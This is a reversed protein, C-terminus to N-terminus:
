ADHGGRGGGSGRKRQRAEAKTPAGAVHRAERKWTLVAERTAVWMTGIKEAVLTGRQAARKLTEHPVGVARALDALPYLRATREQTM